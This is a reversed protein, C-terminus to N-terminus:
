LDKAQGSVERNRADEEAETNVDQIKAGLDIGFDDLDKTSYLQQELIRYTKIVKLTHFYAIVSLGYSIADFTIVLLSVTSVHIEKM